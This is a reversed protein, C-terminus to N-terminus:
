PHSTLITANEKRRLIANAKRGLRERRDKVGVDIRDNLENVGGLSRRFCLVEDHEVVERRLPMHLGLSRRVRPAEDHEVVERRLPM